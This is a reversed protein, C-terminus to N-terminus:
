SATENNDLFKVDALATTTKTTTKTKFDRHPRQVQCPGMNCLLSVPGLEKKKKIDGGMVKENVVCQIRSIFREIHPCDVKTKNRHLVPQDYPQRCVKLGQRYKEGAIPDWDSKDDCEYKTIAHKLLFYDDNRLDYSNWVEFGYTDLDGLVRFVSNPKKKKQNTTEKKTDNNTKRKKKGGGNIVRQYEEELNIDTDFTSLKMMEDCISCSQYDDCLYIGDRDVTGDEDLGKGVVKKATVEKFKISVEKVEKECGEGVIRKSTLQKHPIDIGERGDPDGDKNHEAVNSSTTRKKRDPHPKVYTFLRLDHSLQGSTDTLLRSEAGSHVLRGHFIIFMYRNRPFNLKIRTGYHIRPGRESSEAQRVRHSYVYVYLSFPSYLSHILSLYAWNQIAGVEELDDKSYFHHIGKKILSQWPTRTNGSIERKVAKGSNKKHISKVIIDRLVKAEVEYYADCETNNCNVKMLIHYQTTWQFVLSTLFDFKENSDKESYTRALSENINKYFFSIEDARFLNRNHSQRRELPLVVLTKYTRSNKWAQSEDKRYQSLDFEVPVTYYEIIGQDVASDEQPRFILKKFDHLVHERVDVGDVVTIRDGIQLSGEMQSGNNFKTVQFGGKVHKKVEVGLVKKPDYLVYNPGIIANSDDIKPNSDM